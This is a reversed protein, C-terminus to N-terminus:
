EKGCGKCPKHVDKITKANKHRNFLEIYTRFYGCESLMTELARHDLAAAGKARIERRHREPSNM